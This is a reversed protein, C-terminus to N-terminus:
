CKMHHLAVYVCVHLHVSAESGNKFQTPALIDLNKPCNILAIKLDSIFQGISNNKIDLSVLHTPCHRSLFNVELINHPYKGGCKTEKAM